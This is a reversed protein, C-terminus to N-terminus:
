SLITQRQLASGAAAVLRRCLTMAYRVILTCIVSQAARFEFIWGKFIRGNSLSANENHAHTAFRSRCPVPREYIFLIRRMSRPETSANGAVAVPMDCEALAVRSSM